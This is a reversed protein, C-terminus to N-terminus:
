KINRTYKCKPYNICGLFSGNKGNREVLRGGCKPCENEEDSIVTNLIYKIHEKRKEKDTINARCIMEVIYDVNDIIEVNYSYIKEALNYNRTLEGDHKIRLKATSPICVINYIKRKDINLLEALSLVHGYNQRIPNNYYIKNKGVKRVWKKDYKDGYIFGNYQKTEICFIGYKSVVVHDIQHYSGCTMIFVDNIVKYRDKPLKSLVQRVWYEGFWGIIKNINRNLIYLVIFCLFLVFWYIPSRLLKNGLELM